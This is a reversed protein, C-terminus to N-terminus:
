KNRDVAWTWAAPSPDVNGAKNARVEFTHRGESLGHVSEPSSCAYYAGGDLSCEFTADPNPSTFKFQASTSKTVGSPGSVKSTEPALASGSALAVTKPASFESTNGTPDTATATITQGSSVSTATSFTFSANGSSNTTV